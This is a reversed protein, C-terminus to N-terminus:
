LLVSDYWLQKNRVTVGAYQASAYRALLLLSNQQSVSLVLRQCTMRYVRLISLAFFDIGSKLTKIGSDTISGSFCVRNLPNM